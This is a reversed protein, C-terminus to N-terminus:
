PTEESRGGSGGGGLIRLVADVARLHLDHRAEISTAGM